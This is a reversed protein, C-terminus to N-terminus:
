SKSKGVSIKKSTEPNKDKLNNEFMLKNQLELADMRLEFALPTPM